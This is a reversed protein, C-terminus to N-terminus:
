FPVSDDFDPKPKPKPKESANKPKVSLSMFQRGSKSTKIWANLWYDKCGVNISGTYDADTDKEKREKNNFLAGRNTNDYTTM